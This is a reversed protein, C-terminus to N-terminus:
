AWPPALSRASFTSRSAISASGASSWRTIASASKRTCRFPASAPSRSNSSRIPLRGAAVGSLTDDLPKTDSIDKSAVVHMEDDVLRAIYQVSNELGGYKGERRLAEVSDTRVLGMDVGKLFLIDSVNQVAGASLIPLVRMNDGDDVVSAIDAAYRLYSGTINGSVISVTNANVKRRMAEIAADGGPARARRVRQQALAAQEPLLTPLIGFTLLLPILFIAIRRWSVRVRRVM